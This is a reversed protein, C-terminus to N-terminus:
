SFALLKKALDRRETEPLSQDTLPYVLREEKACHPGYVAMLTAQGQAFADWRDEALAVRMRGVAQELARHEVRMVQTPGAIM